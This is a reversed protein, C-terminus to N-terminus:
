ICKMVFLNLLKNLISQLKQRVNYYKTGKYRLWAVSFIANARRDAPNINAKNGILYM